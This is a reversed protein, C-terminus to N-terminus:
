KKWTKQVEAVHAKVEAETPKPNAVWKYGRGQWVFMKPDGAMPQDPAKDRYARWMADVFPDMTKGEQRPRKHPGRNAAYEDEQAMWRDVYDFWADHDWEEIAEMLRASLAMGVWAVANCCKRYGETSKDWRQWQEPPKEEYHSRKGHHQIM